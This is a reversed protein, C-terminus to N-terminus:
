REVHFRYMSDFLNRVLNVKRFAASFRMRPSQHWDRNSRATRSLGLRTTTSIDDLEKGKRFSDAADVTTSHLSFLLLYFTKSILWVWDQDSMIHALLLFSEQISCQTEFALFHIGLIVKDTNVLFVFRRIKLQNWVSAGSPMMIIHYSICVRPILCRFLTVPLFSWCEKFDFLWQAWM